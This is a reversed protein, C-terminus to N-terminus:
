GFSLFNFLFYEPVCRPVVGEGRGFNPAVGFINDESSLLPFSLCHVSFFRLSSGLDGGKTTGFIATLAASGGLSIDGRDTLRLGLKNEILNEKEDM